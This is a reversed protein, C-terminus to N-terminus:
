QNPLTVAVGGGGVRTDAAIAFLGAERLAQLLPEPLQATREAAGRWEGIVPALSRARDLWDHSSRPAPTTAHSPIDIVTM